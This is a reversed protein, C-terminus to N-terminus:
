PKRQDEQGTVDDQGSAQGGASASGTSVPWLRSAHFGPIPHHARAQFGLRVAQGDADLLRYEGDQRGDAIFQAFQAPGTAALDAPSIDAISAGLLESAEYGLTAEVGGSVAVYRSDDDTVLLFAGPEPQGSVEQYALWARVVDLAAEAYAANGVQIGEWAREASRWANLADRILATPMLMGETHDGPGDMKRGIALM